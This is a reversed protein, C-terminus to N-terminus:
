PLPERRVEVAHTFVVTEDVPLADLAGDGLRLRLHQDSACGGVWAGEVELSEGLNGVSRARFEHHVHRVDRAHNGRPHM